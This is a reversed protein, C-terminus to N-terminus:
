VLIGSEVQEPNGVSSSYCPEGCPFDFDGGLGCEEEEMERFSSTGQPESLPQQFFRGAANGAEAPAAERLCTALKGHERVPLVSRASFQSRGERRCPEPCSQVFGEFPEPCAKKFLGAAESM